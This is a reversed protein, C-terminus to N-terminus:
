VSLRGDMVGRSLRIEVLPIMIFLLSAIVIVVILLWMYDAFFSEM